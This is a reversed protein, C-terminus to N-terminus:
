MRSMRHLLVTAQAMLRRQAPTLDALRRALWANRCERADALVQRGAPTLSVIVHRRDHPDEIREVLGRELLSAVTRTMSPPQVRERDALARLTSSATRLAGLVSYQGPTLLDGSAETRLRRSTHMIATRLDGALGTPDTAM